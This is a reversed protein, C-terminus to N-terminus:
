LTVRLVVANHRFNHEFIYLLMVSSQNQVYKNGKETGAPPSIGGHAQFVIDYQM